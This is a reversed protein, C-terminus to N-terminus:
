ERLYRVRRYVGQAFPKHHAQHRKHATLFVKQFFTGFVAPLQFQRMWNKGVLVDVAQPRYFSLIEVDRGYVGYKVRILYIGALAQSLREIPKHVCGLLRNAIPCRQYDYAVTVDRLVLRRYRRKERGPRHMVSQKAPSQSAFRPKNDLCALRSLYHM